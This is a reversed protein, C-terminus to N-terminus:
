KFDLLRGDLGRFKVDKMSGLTNGGGMVAVCSYMKLSISNAKVLLVAILNM